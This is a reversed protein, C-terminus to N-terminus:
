IWNISKPESYKSGNFLVHRVSKISKIKRNLAAMKLLIEAIEHRGPKTNSSAM